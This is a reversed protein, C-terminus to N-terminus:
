YYFACGGAKGDGGLGAQSGFTTYINTSAGMGGDGVNVGNSGNSVTVNPSITVDNQGYGGEGGAGYPGNLIGTIADGINFGSAGPGGQSPISGGGGGAGASGGGGGGVVDDPANVQGPYGSNGAAAPYGDGTDYYVAYGSSGGNGNTLKGATLRYNSNFTRGGQGGTAYVYKATNSGVSGAGFYISSSSGSYAVYELPPTSGVSLAGTIGPGGAGVVVTITGGSTVTSRRVAVGGGGGGGGGSLSFGAPEGMYGSGSIAGGGGGGGGVVIAAISSAGSKTTFTYTAPIVRVILEKASKGLFDLMSVPLGLGAPAAASALNAASFEDQIGTSAGSTKLLIPPSAPLPM